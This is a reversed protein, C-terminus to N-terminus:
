APAVTDLRELETRLQGVLPHTRGLRRQLMVLSAQYHDLKRRADEQSLGRDVRSPLERVRSVKDAAFVLAAERRARAVQARLAAKREDRDEISDDESVAQVLRAVHKGFLGELESADTDTTELVDHLVGSAVVEDSCGAHHLEAAVELAHQVDAGHREKAFKLASRTLPLGATLLPSVHALEHTQV